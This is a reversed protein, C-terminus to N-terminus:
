SGVTPTRKFIENYAKPFIALGLAVVVGGMVWANRQGDKFTKTSKVPRSRKKSYFRRRAM